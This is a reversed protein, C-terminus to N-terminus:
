TIGLAPYEIRMPRSKPPCQRANSGYTQARAATGSMPMAPGVIVASHCPTSLAVAGPIGIPPFREAATGSAARPLQEQTARGEVM